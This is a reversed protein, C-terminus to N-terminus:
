ALVEFHRQYEERAQSYDEVQGIDLWYDSILYRGIEENRRLLTKILMDMGFYTGRPIFRFVGPTMCYIGALVELNFEPKEEIDAITDNPNVTVNGFRFPTSIIKTAVSLISRRADAFPAILLLSLLLTALRM